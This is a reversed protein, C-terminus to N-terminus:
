ASINARYRVRSKLNQVSLLDAKLFREVQLSIKELTNEKFPFLSYNKRSRLAYNM